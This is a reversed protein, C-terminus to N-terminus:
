VAPFTYPLPLQQWRASLSGSVSTGNGKFNFFSGAGFTDQDLTLEQYNFSLSAGLSIEDTIKWAIAPTASLDILVAKTVIASFETNDGWQTGLGFPSNVGFGFTFRDNIPSAFYIEPAAQLQTKAYYPTGNIDARNGLIIAYVGVDAEPQSLQTLGAPNYFVAAASDATAVFANGKATAFADQNPLYYGAGLVAGPLLTWPVLLALTRKM